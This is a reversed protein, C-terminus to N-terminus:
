DSVRRLLRYDIFHIVANLSALCLGTILFAGVPQQILPVVPSLTQRITGLAVLAASFGVATGVANALSTGVPQKFAVSEIHGLIMCNTVIIQVFLAVQTYISFALAEMFMTALTTLTAIVLVFCPLRINDPIVKRISSITLSSGILVFSSAAALGLANRVNYSVALLPCLGLLQVTAPNKRWIGDILADKLM